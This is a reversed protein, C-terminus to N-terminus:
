AGNKPRRPFLSCSMLCVILTAVFVTAMLAPWPPIHSFVSNFMTVASAILAVTVLLVRAPTWPPKYSFMVLAFVAYSAALSLRIFDSVEM